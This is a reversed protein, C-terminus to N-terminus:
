RGDLVTRLWTAVDRIEDPTVAHPMPYERWQVSYGLALLRDRSQRAREIPILPDQTSHAM